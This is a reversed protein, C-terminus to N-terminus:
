EAAEKMVVEAILDRVADSRSIDRNEKAALERRWKDLAALWEYDVRVQLNYTTM